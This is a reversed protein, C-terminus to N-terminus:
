HLVASLFECGNILVHHQKCWLITDGQVSSRYSYFPIQNVAPLPMGAANIEDLHTSNFNSVGIARAGGSQWIEVLASWTRLRCAKADYQPSNFNCEPEEPSPTNNCGGGSLCDPWHILLLDVFGLGTTAVTNNFQAWASTYGMSLYPGVKSTFFIDGRPIGSARAAIGSFLQNHYSASSDIRRGGLQLFTSISAEVYPGCSSFNMPNPSVCEPDLCGNFCEPYSGYPQSANGTYGGSGAGSWPMVVGSHAANELVIGPPGGVSLATSVASLALFCRMNFPSTSPRTLM